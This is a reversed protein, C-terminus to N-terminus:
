RRWRRGIHALSLGCALLGWASAPEPVASMVRGSASTATGLALAPQFALPTGEAFALAFTPIALGVDTQGTATDPFFGNGIQEWTVHDPQYDIRWEGGFSTIDATYSGYGADFWAITNSGAWYNQLTGSSERFEGPNLAGVVEANPDFFVTYSFISENDRRNHVDYQVLRIPINQSSDVVGASTLLSTATVDSVRSRVDVKGLSGALETPNSTSTLELARCVPTIAGALVLSWVFLGNQIVARM